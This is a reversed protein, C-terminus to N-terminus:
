KRGRTGSMSHHLGLQQQNLSLLLGSCKIMIVETKEIKTTISIEPDLVTTRIDRGLVHFLFKIIRMLGNLYFSGIKKTLAITGSHMMLKRTGMGAIISLISITILQM